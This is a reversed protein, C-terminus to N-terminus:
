ADELRTAQSMRVVVPRVVASCEWESAKFHYEEFRAIIKPSWQETFLSLKDSLNIATPIM